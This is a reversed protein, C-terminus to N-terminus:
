HNTGNRASEFHAIENGVESLARSKEPQKQELIECFESIARFLGSFGGLLFWKQLCANLWLPLLKNYEKGSVVAITGNGCLDVGNYYVAWYFDTM